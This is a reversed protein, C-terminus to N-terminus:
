EQSVITVKAPATPALPAVVAIPALRAVPAAIVVPRPAPSPTPSPKPATRLNPSASPEAASTLQKVRATEDRAPSERLRPDQAAPLWIEVPDSAYPFRFTAPLIGVVRYAHASLLISKGVLATDAAFRRRWLVEGIMVVPSASASNDSVRLTRGALPHVRLRSFDRPAVSAAVVLEPAGAGTLAFAMEHPGANLITTLDKERLSVPYARPQRLCEFASVDPPAPILDSVARPPAVPTWLRELRNVAPSHAGVGFVLSLVASALIRRAFSGKRLGDRVGRLGKAIRMKPAPSV